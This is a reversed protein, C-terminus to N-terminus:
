PIAGEPRHYEDTLGRREPALCVNGYQHRLAKVHRRVECGCNCSCADGLMYVAADPLRKALGGVTAYVCACTNVGCVYINKRNFGYHEIAKLVQPSGDDRHKVVFANRKYGDLAKTIRHHTDGPVHDPYVDSEGYEVLVIGYGLQRALRIKRIVAALLNPKSGVGFELQMDVIVLTGHRKM